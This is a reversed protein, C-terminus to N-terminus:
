QRIQARSRVFHSIVMNKMIGKYIDWGKDGYVSIVNALQM